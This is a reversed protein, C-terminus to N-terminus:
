YVSLPPNLSNSKLLAVFTVLPICPGIHPFESLFLLNWYIQHSSQNLCSMSLFLLYPIDFCIFPLIIM